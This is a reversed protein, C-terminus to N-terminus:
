GHAEICPRDELPGVNTPISGREMVSHMIGKIPRSWLSQLAQPPARHCGGPRDDGRRSRALPAPCERNAASAAPTYEGRIWRFLSHTCCRMHLRSLSLWDADGASPSGSFFLPRDGFLCCWLWRRLGGPRIWRLKTYPPRVSLAGGCPCIAEFAAPFSLTTLRAGLTRSVTPEGYNEWRGITGNEWGLIDALRIALGRRSWCHGGYLAARRLRSSRLQGKNCFM